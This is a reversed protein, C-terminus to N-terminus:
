FMMVINLQGFLFRIRIRVNQIQYRVLVGGTSAASIGTMVGLWGRHATSVRAGTGSLTQQQSVSWAWRGAPWGTLIVPWGAVGVVSVGHAVTVCVQSKLLLISVAM